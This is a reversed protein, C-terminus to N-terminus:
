PCGFDTWLQRLSQWVDDDYPKPSIEYFLLTKHRRKDFRLHVTCQLTIPKKAMYDLMDITGRFTKADGKDTKVKKIKTQVTVAQDVQAMKPSVTNSAILGTYYAKLNLAVIKANTKQLGDLYWLFAYTWYDNSKANGWGPTFRIDEVGKYPIQPAFAIPIPFREVGWDKPVKLTYPAESANGALEPAPTQGFVALSLLSLLLIISNKM